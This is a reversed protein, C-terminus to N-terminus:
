IRGKSRLFRARQPLPAKQSLDVPILEDLVDGATYKKSTATTHQWQNLGFSVHALALVLLLRITVYGGSM